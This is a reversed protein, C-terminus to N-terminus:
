KMKEEGTWGILILIHSFREELKSAQILLKNLEMRRLARTYAALLYNTVPKKKLKDEDMCTM